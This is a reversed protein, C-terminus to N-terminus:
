SILPFGIYAIHGYISENSNYHFDTIVINSVEEFEFTIAIDNTFTQCQNLVVKSNLFSNSFLLTSRVFENSNRNFWTKKNVFLIKNLIINQFGLFVLSETSLPFAAYQYNKKGNDISYTNFIIQINSIKTVKEGILTIFGGM